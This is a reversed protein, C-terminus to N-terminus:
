GPLLPVHYQPCYAEYAAGLVYYAQQPALQLAGMVAFMAGPGPTASADCATHGAAILRDAPGTIGGAALENLYNEDATTAQAGPVVLLGAVVVAVILGKKMRM